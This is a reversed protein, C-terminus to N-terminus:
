KESLFILIRTYSPGTNQPLRFCDSFPCYVLVSACHSSVLYRRYYKQCVDAFRLCKVNLTNGQRVVVHIGSFAWIVWECLALAVAASRETQCAFNMGCSSMRESLSLGTQLQKSTEGSPCRSETLWDHKSHAAKPLTTAPSNWGDEKLQRKEWETLPWCDM